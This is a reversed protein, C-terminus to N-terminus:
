FANRVQLKLTGKVVDINYQVRSCRTMCSWMKPTICRALQEPTTEIRERKTTVSTGYASEASIGKLGREATEDLHGKNHLPHSRVSKHENM